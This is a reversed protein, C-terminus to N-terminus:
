LNEMVRSVNTDPAAVLSDVVFLNPRQVCGGGGMMSVSTFRTISGWM